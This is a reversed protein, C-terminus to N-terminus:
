MSQACGCIDDGGMRKAHNWQLWLSARKGVTTPQAIQFHTYALTPLAAHERAFDALAAICRVLRVRVLCLAERHLVLDTNDGIFASTAGFHIIGKAAPADDGFLYVHAMVDHRFRREYEAAQELDFTDLASRMQELAEDSIDIGLEAESEALALWLRRWTGFRKQPSFIQQMESSAYRESLPHSYRGYDTM